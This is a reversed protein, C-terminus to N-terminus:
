LEQTSSKPAPPTSTDFVSSSIWTWLMQTRTTKLAPRQYTSILSSTVLLKRRKNLPHHRSPFRNQHKSTELRKMPCPRRSQSTPQPTELKYAATRPSTINLTSQAHWPFHSDGKVGGAALYRNTVGLVRVIEILMTGSGQAASSVGSAYPLSSGNSFFNGDALVQSGPPHWAPLRLHISDDSILSPRKSGSVTFRDMLYCTWFLKRRGERESPAIRLEAPLERHLNLAFAMSVAHTLVM